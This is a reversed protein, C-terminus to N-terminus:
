SAPATRTGLVIGHSRLTQLTGIGGEIVVDARPHQLEQALLALLSAGSAAANNQILELLRATAANIELFRVADARDRYVVLWTLEAAPGPPLFAPGIRHVPFRYGLVWAAPNAVPIGGRLDGEADVDVHEDSDVELIAVALEAWEYHALEALFPFDKADAVREDRLYTLFEQPVEMFYPTQAKHDRFYDRVLQRWEQEAHIRRLVPFSQALLSEVNNFLLDRYIALRRDEIGAPAPHRQPDRIHATLALQQRQFDPISTM